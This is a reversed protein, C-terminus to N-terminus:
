FDTLLVNLILKKIFNISEGYLFLLGKRHNTRQSLHFNDGWEKKLIQTDNYNNLMYTEQLAIIDYKEKKFLHFLTRRKKKNRLGQVNFTLIKLKQNNFDM